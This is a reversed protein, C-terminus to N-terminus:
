IAGRLHASVTVGSFGMDEGIREYSWGKNRLARAKEVDFKKQKKTATEVVPEAVATEIPAPEQTLDPLTMPTTLLQYVEAPTAEITIGNIWNIIM